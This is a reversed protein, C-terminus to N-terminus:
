VRELGWCGGVLVLLVGGEVVVVVVVESGCSRIEEGASLPEMGGGRVEEGERGKRRCERKRTRKKHLKNTGKCLACMSMIYIHIKGRGRQCLIWLGNHERQRLKTTNNDAFAKKLFFFFREQMFIYAGGWGRTKSFDLDDM